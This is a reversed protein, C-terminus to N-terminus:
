ESWDARGQRAEPTFKEVHHRPGREVDVLCVMNGWYLAVYHFLETCSVEAASSEMSPNGAGRACPGGRGLPIARVQEAFNRIGYSQKTPVNQSINHLTKLQTGIGLLPSTGPTNM